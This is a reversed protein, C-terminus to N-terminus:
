RYIKTEDKRKKSIELDFLENAPIPSVFYRGQMVTCGLEILKNKQNEFDVGEAVVKINASDSIAILSAIISENDVRLIINKVLKEDIKLYDIPFESINHLALRGLEMIGISVSLGAERVLKLVVKVQQNHEQTNLKNIDLIIRSKEIGSEEIIRNMDDFFGAEDFQTLSVSIMMKKAHFGNVDWHQLQAVAKRLLWEGLLNIKGSDEIEASFKTCFVLGMRPHNFCPMAQVIMTGGSSTDLYPQYYIVLKDLFNGENIDAVLSVSAEEIEHELINNVRYNNRGAQKAKALAEGASKILGESIENGQSNIAIGICATIFVRNGDIYFPQIISDQIRQAVLVAVEPSALEPLIFFFSNGAYRSITDIQRLVTKLRNAAEMLVKNGFSDGYIRNINNFEDINLIMVSFIKNHHGSYILIRKLREDFIQRDPLSTLQDLSGHHLTDENIKIVEVFGEGRYNRRRIFVEEPSLQSKKAQYIREAVIIAVITLVSVIIVLYGDL